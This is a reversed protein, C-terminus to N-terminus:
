RSEPCKSHGPSVTLFFNIFITRVLSLGLVMAGRFSSFFICHWSDALAALVCVPNQFHQDHIWSCWEKRVDFWAPNEDTPSGFLVLGVPVVKEREMLLLVNSSRWMTELQSSVLLCTAHRGKASEKGFLLGVQDTGDGPMWAQFTMLSAKSLGIDGQPLKSKALEPPRELLTGVINPLSSLNDSGAKPLMASLDGATASAIDMAQM